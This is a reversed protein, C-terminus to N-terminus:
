EGILNLRRERWSDMMSIFISAWSGILKLLVIEIIDLVLPVVEFLLSIKSELDHIEKNNEHDSSKSQNIGEEFQRLTFLM